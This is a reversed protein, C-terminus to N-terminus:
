AASKPPRGRRKPAFDGTTEVSGEGIFVVPAELNVTATVAEAAIWVGDVLAEAVIVGEATGRLRTETM